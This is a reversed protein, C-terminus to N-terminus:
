SETKEPCVTFAVAGAVQPIKKLLLLTLSDNPKM